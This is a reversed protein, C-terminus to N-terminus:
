HSSLTVQILEEGCLVSIVSVDEAHGATYLYNRRTINAGIYALPLYSMNNLNRLTYINFKYM